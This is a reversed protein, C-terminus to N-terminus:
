VAIVARGVQARGHERLHSVLDLATKLLVLLVVLGVPQRLALILFGGFLITLQLVFIRLYPRFMQAGVSISLYERRGVYNLVLSAAHSVFLAAAALLLIRDDPVRPAPDVFGFFGFAGTLLMVFVGHGIWFLGYHFAFFAALAAKAAISADQSPPGSALLMKPVNLLGVIGNEIWYAILVTAVDWGLYLVGVVPFLNAAVLLVVALPASQGISRVRGLWGTLTM